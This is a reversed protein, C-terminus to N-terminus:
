GNAVVDDDDDDFGMLDWSNRHIVDGGDGRNWV